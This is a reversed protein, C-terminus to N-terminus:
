RFHGVFFPLYRLDQCQLAVQSDRADHLETWHSNVKDVPSLSENTRKVILKNASLILISRGEERLATRENGGGGVRREESISRM